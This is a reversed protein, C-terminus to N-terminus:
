SHKLSIFIIILAIETYRLTVEAQRIFTLIKGVTAIIDFYAFV